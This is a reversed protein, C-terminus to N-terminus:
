IRHAADSCVTRIESVEPAEAAVEAVEDDESVSEEGSEKEEDEGSEEEENEGSEEEENEGPEEVEKEMGQAEGAEETLVNEGQGLAEDHKSMDKPQADFGGRASEGDTVTGDEERDERPAAVLMSEPTEDNRTRVEGAGAAQAEVQVALQAVLRSPAM